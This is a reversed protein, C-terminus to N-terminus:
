AQSESWSIRSSVQFPATGNVTTTDLASACITVIDPGNPFVGDGGLVSNGLDILRTLDFTQSSVTREGNAGIAGGSARFQYITTGEQITDGSAHAVYQSLSPSGVNEYGINSLAGNLIVSIRADHSVSIGLENLKLQMRNIIDREGVAGILNNDVSPALRLSVLPILSSVDVNEGGSAPAGINVATSNGVTPYVAPYNRGGYQLFIYVRFNSGSFDTYEVTQGNLENDATYLSIGNSFKSADAAPFSLRLYYRYQRASYDYTRTVVGAANTTSSNSAGNTFSLANGSATFLYSDDDDFGGDMIVSTGWHFLSPVYTPLGTNFSEYRAPVNGTRMYAENLKNNHVFEHMYKVHGKTDKFGFRIKGAGYWSYDIYAMQIANIDLNFGSPGNGDATDISWNSQQVKTDETKTIIVGTNSVGRYKPQIDISTDSVIRTVKYSQGRVVIKDGASLHTNFKTNTGTLTNSNFTANITGPIQTTSSRRVAYLYQGDYEYFMGNQDDFLGGRIGANSYSAITYEVIGGPADDAPDGGMTYTFTFTTSGTITFSTGNYHNTGSSVTAGRLKIVDGTTLGHPYETTVTATTGSSTLLRATRYPNFNIAMSCQIGKGSQYRFYKRTQRIVKSDPSTGATIDVGGDFPRHIFTGDARVNLRTDVFHQGGTTGVGANNELTLSTDSVISAITGESYPGYTADGELVFKDGIAYAATFKTDTGTVVKTNTATTVTGAAAVRGSISSVTLNYAGASGQTASIALTGSNWDIENTALGVYKSHKAYAYYETANTLGSIDAGSTKNFTVKQGDSLGHGGSFNIYYLSNETDEVVDTNAFTLVRSSLRSNAAISKTTTTVGTIDYYDDAIGFTQGTTFIIPATGAGNFDYPTGTDSKKLQIRNDDVVGVKVTDGDSLSAPTLADAVAQALAQAQAAINSTNSYTSSTHGDDLGFFAQIHWTPGMTDRNNYTMGSGNHYFSSSGDNYYDTWGTNQLFVTISYGSVEGSGANEYISAYNWRWTSNYTNPTFDRHTYTTGSLTHRRSNHENLQLQCRDVDPASFTTANNLATFDPVQRVTLIFDTYTNYSYPTGIYFFGMNSLNGPWYSSSSGSSYVTYKTSNSGIDVAQGTFLTAPTYNVPNFYYRALTSGSSNYFYFFSTNEGWYFEQTITGGYSGNPTIIQDNYMYYEGSGSYNMLLRSHDQASKMTAAQGECWTKAADYVATITSSSNPNSPSSATGPVAGGVGASVTIEQDNYLGHLPLYIDDSSTDVYADGDPANSTTTNSLTLEKKGVTNTVYVSTNTSFGHAYDTTVTLTSPNAGDTNIGEFKDYSISSGTFFSGPIITTYATKQDGTSSQVASAKYNFTSTTPVQTILYKGNATRSTLGRVEIPDGISLGHEESTTVNIIESNNTANVSVIGPISVGPARTYASPINNVLELTEWKTPQLGYEFDTDILNEPTSVRLKSVPDTYTEGFEVKDEPIDVFIQLEDSDSMSTTDHELTITTEDNTSNYSVTGGKNPDAFNYVIVGDTVNTILQLKRLKFNGDIVITRASADFTYNYILKKAM